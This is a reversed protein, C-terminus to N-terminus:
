PSQSAATCMPPVKEFERFRVCHEQVLKSLPKTKYNYKFQSKAGGQADIEIKGGLGGITISVEPLFYRRGGEEAFVRVIQKELEEVYREIPSTNGGAPFECPKMALFHRIDPRRAQSPQSIELEVELRRLKPLAEREISIDHRFFSGLLANANSCMPFNFNVLRIHEINRPYRPTYSWDSGDGDIIDTTEFATFDFSKLNPTYDRLHRAFDIRLHQCKHVHLQELPLSWTSIANPQPRSIYELLDNTTFNQCDVIGLTLITDPIIKVISEGSVKSSEIFLKKLKTLGIKLLDDYMALEKPGLGHLYVTELWRFAFQHHMIRFLSSNMRDRGRLGICWRWGKLKIRRDEMAQIIAPTSAKICPHKALLDDSPPCIYVHQLNRCVVIVDQFKTVPTNLRCSPRLPYTLSRVRDALQRNNRLCKYFANFTEVSNLYPNAYLLEYAISGWTSCVHALRVLISNRRTDCTSLFNHSIMYDGSADVADTSSAHIFIDRIISYPLTSYDM